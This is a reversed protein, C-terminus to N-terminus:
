LEVAADDRAITGEIRQKGAHEGTGVVAFDGDGAGSQVARAIEEDQMIGVGPEHPAFVGEALNLKKQFKPFKVSGQKTHLNIVMMSSGSSCGHFEFRYPRERRLVQLLYFRYPLPPSM